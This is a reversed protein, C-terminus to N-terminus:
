PIYFMHICMFSMGSLVYTYVHFISGEVLQVDNVYRSPGAVLCCMAVKVTESTSERLLSCCILTTAYISISLLAASRQNLESGYIAVAASVGHSPWLM